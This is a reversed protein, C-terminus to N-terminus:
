ESQDVSASRAESATQECTCQLSTIVTTVIIPTVTQIMTTVRGPVVTSTQTSLTEPGIRVVGDSGTVTAAQLLAGSVRSAGTVAKLASQHLRLDPQLILM